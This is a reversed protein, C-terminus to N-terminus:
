CPASPPALEVFPEEGGAVLARALDPDWAACARRVDDLYATREATELWPSWDGRRALEALTAEVVDAPPLAGALLASCDDCSRVEELEGASLTRAAYGASAANAELESPLAAYGHGGAARVAARLLDDAEFFHTGSREWRRAHELEHRLIPGLAPEPIGPLEGWVALRHARLHHRQVREGGVARFVAVTDPWVFGAPQLYAM